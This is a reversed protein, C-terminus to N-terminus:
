KLLAQTLLAHHSPLLKQTLCFIKQLQQKRQVAVQVAAARCSPQHCIEGNAKLPIDRTEKDLATSLLLSPSQTCQSSIEDSVRFPKLSCFMAM